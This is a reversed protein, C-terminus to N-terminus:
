ISSTKIEKLLEQKDITVKYPFNYKYNAYYLLKIGEKECLERKINDRNIVKDFGDKGGFHERPEFHQKGQCEIAIKYEPLYFDLSQKKLWKFYKSTVQSIYAINEECLLKEIENELNSKNCHPCGEGSLHHLPTQKFVRNCKKCLINVETTSNVYDQFYAYKDNHVKNAEKEFEEFTKRAKEIQRNRGCIPCGKGKLHNVPTQYFINGCENCQIKVYKHSSQYDQFYIYKGKHITNGEEEFKDVSKSRKQTQRIKGCENCGCGNLHHLPTQWFDGHIPCTILVKTTSNVYDQHYFYKGNHIKTAQEEFEQYTKKKAM